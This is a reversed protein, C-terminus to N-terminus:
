AIDCFFHPPIPALLRSAGKKLLHPNMPGPGRLGGNEGSAHFLGRCRKADPAIWM